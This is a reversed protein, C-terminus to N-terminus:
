LEDKGEAEQVNRLGRLAKAYEYIRARSQDKLRYAETVEIYIHEELKNKLRLCDCIAREESYYRYYGFETTKTCIDGGIDENQFYYRRITFYLEMKKRDTRETAVTVVGPEKKLLGCLYCASEMCIVASPNVKAIEIYKYDEPKEYGCKTCWYWGRAFKELVGEQELEQIQRMTVANDQLTSFRMYGHNSAFLGTIREYTKVLM